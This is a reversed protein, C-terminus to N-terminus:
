VDKSAEIASAAQPIWKCIGIAVSLASVIWSGHEGLDVAQFQELALTLVPLVIIAWTSYHKWKSVQSM